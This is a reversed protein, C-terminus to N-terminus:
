SGEIFARVIGNFDNSQERFSYHGAQNLICLELRPVVSSLMEFLSIGLGVPASPDDRGWIILTPTRLAGAKVAAATERKRADFDSLFTARAFSRMKLRAEATKSLRAVEYLDEVFDETIHRKSYSNAIPERQVSIKTEVVPANKELDTYFNRPTSPDDPALTNSDVIVLSKASKPHEIALSAAVFAGRSHGILAAEEDEIGMTTMFNRAHEITADMSYDKDTKPNDTHGMGLKDFAYVHFTQSLADM